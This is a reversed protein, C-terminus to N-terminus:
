VLKINMVVPSYFSRPVFEYTCMENVPFVPDPPVPNYLYMRPGLKYKYYQYGLVILYFYRDVVKM